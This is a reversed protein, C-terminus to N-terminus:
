HGKWQELVANAGDVSLTNNELNAITIDGGSITLKSDLNKSVTAQNSVKSTLAISGKEITVDGTFSYNGAEVKLGGGSVNIAKGNSKSVTAQNSVKSTLAISGKEITVDGTFSYNGAEVKLGGGSVNIAKGNSKISCNDSVLITKGDTDQAESTAQLTVTDQLKFAAEGNKAILELNKTKLAAGAKVEAGTSGLTLNEKAEITLHTAGTITKDVTVNNAALTADTAGTAANISGSTGAAASFTYDKLDINGNVVVRGSKGLDLAGKAAGSVSSTGALFKNLTDKNKFVLEAKSTEGGVSILGEKDATTHAAVVVNEGLEVTGTKINLTGATTTGGALKITGETISLKGENDGTTEPVDALKIVGEGAAGVTIDLKEVTGFTEVQGKTTGFDLKGGNGALKGKLVADSANTTGAFAITGGNSLTILSAATGNAAARGLTAAGASAAATLSIKAKAGSVTIKNAEITAAAADSAASKINVLGSQVDIQNIKVTLDQSAVAELSIAADAAGTQVTLTGSGSLTLAGAAAAKISHAVKNNVGKVKVDAKWDKTDQGTIAVQDTDTFQLEGQNALDTLTPATAQAQGAALGM